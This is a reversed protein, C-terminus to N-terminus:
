PKAKAVIYLYRLPEAGTNIVDHETFPPCYAVVSPKLKFTPGGTIRMEGTGALVIVAEEFAETSHKGVAKAPPLVVLGSRMTVTEPPGSLVRMYERATPNLEVLRPAPKSAPERAAALTSVGILLALSVFFLHRINDQRKPM